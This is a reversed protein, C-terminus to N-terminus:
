GGINLVSEIEDGVQDFFAIVDQEVKTNAKKSLLPV